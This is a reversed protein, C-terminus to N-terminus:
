RLLPCSTAGGRCTDVVNLYLLFGSTKTGQVSRSTLGCGVEGAAFVLSTLQGVM